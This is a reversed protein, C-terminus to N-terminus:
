VRRKFLFLTQKLVRSNNQHQVHLIQIIFQKKKQDTLKNLGKKDFIFSEIKREM